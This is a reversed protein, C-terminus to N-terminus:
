VKYSRAAPDVEHRLHSVVRGVLIQRWTRAFTVSCIDARQFAQFLGLRFTAEEAPYVLHQRALPPFFM